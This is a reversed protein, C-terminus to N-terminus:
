YNDCNLRHSSEGSPLCDNTKEPLSSPRKGKINVSKEKGFQINIEMDTNRILVIATILTISFILAVQLEPMNEMRANKLNMQLIILISVSFIAM